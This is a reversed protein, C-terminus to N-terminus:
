QEQVQEMGKSKAFLQAANSGYLLEICHKWDLYTSLLNNDAEAQRHGIDEGKEYNKEVISAQRIAENLYRKEKSCNYANINYIMLLRRRVMNDYCLFKCQELQHQVVKMKQLTVELNCPMSQYQACVPFAVSLFFTAMLAVVVILSRNMKYRWYKITLTLQQAIINM